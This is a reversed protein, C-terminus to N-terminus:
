KIYINGSVRKRNRRCSIGRPGEPCVITEEVVKRNDIKVPANENPKSTPKQEFRKPLDQKPQPTPKQEFIEILNTGPPTVKRQNNEIPVLDDNPAPLVTSLPKPSTRLASRRYYTIPVAMNTRTAIAKGMSESIQDDKEAKGHIGVLKGKSNLVSGGSMGALTPNSYLLQYGGPLPNEPKAIVEGKLIRILRLPVASTPLPFGAVFIPDLMAVSDINGIPAVEYVRRSSFTLVAMDVQGIRQISGQELQHEEGDPTVIALEEGLRNSSVVHWATLVTYREGDRKVLVGSGPSAATELRVTIAKAIRAVSSSDQAIAAYNQFVLASTTLMFTGLLIQKGLQLLSLVSVFAVNGKMDYKGSGKM